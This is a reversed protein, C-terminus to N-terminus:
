AVRRNPAAAPKWCEDVFAAIEKTLRAPALRLELM